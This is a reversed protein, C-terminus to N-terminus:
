KQRGIPFNTNSQVRTHSILYTPPISGLGWLSVGVKKRSLTYDNINEISYYIPPGQATAAAGLVGVNSPDDLRTM